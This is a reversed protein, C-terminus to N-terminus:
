QVLIAGTIVFNPLIPLIICTRRSRYPPLQSYKCLVFFKLTVYVSLFSGISYLAGTEVTRAFIRNIHASYSM